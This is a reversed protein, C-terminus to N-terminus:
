GMVVAARVSHIRIVPRDAMLLNPLVTGVGKGSRTPALTLLHAPGAHRLLEGKPGRGVLLAAPDRALAPSALEARLQRPAAWAASGMADSPAPRRLRTWLTFAAAGTGSLFIGGSWIADGWEKPFLLGLLAFGVFGALMGLLGAYAARVAANGLRWTFAVTRWAALLAGSM